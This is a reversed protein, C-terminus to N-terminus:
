MIKNLEIMLFKELENSPINYPVSILRIGRDLIMKAKILDREQQSLFDKYTKHFHPIFRYHQEGNIEVAIRLEECYCDIELRRKTNHNVLWKPRVSAFPKQFISQLIARVHSERKGKNEFTYYLNEESDTVNKPNFKDHNSNKNQKMEKRLKFIKDDISDVKYNKSSVNAVQLLSNLLLNM